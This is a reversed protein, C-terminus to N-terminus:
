TFGAANRTPHTSYTCAHRFTHRHCAMTNLLRRLCGSFNWLAPVNNLRLDHSKARCGSPRVCVRAPRISTLVLKPLCKLYRITTVRSRLRVPHFPSEPRCRAAAREGLGRSAGLCFSFCFFVTYYGDYDCFVFLFVFLCSSSFCFPVGFSSM